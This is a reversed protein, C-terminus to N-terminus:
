RHIVLAAKLRIDELSSGIYIQYTGPNTVFAAAETHWSQFARVSLSLVVSKREGPELSVKQFECLTKVPEQSSPNSKGLYVQITEMGKRTGTNQITLSLLVPTQSVSSKTINLEGYAFSTYSLGHGFCFQVPIHHKEYYRYGVLLGEGYTETLHADMQAHEEKTLARGPYEGLTLASCDTLSYPLSEPLKGSPNVKGLLVEALATGGEMGSYWDWVIAKAKEKWRGMSVPSGAKIVVVANPNVELVAEILADQAYPLTLDDRDYGEVDYDHNLGGIILVEDAEKALAVAEERLLRQKEKTKEDTQSRQEMFTDEAREEDISTKQWSVDARIDKPVIHYGRAFTIECNGGLQSKLGMLPSIEYLAKIEASGGGAAHLREANDGIVLLKKLTDPQFPLRNEENKLLVISERATKLAALRHEPTNYCGSKRDSCPIAITKAKDKDSPVIQIMKLRLMLRLLNKVKHNISEEAVEGKQIAQLLPNALYYNDFDSTVSMELDVSTEAAAKTNHLAGWDTIVAGDFGWEERLIKDLLMPNECCHKGRILNYGGMLAYTNGEKVAAEFGPLYIERLTREDIEVNVWVRETEQSNCAFHKVCAAVDSKQIGQIMPAAMQSTLCPDESMYEFNRGCVPVRKINIGPALIVDKGRGRAEEGLTQGSQRALETNWTAAIASNCPLYSVYDDSNGVPIWDDNHFEHRVGMPGDSMKLSPIGLREISGSKFLGNGHIMQIKEELTLEKLLMEIKTNIEQISM